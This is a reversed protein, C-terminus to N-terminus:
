TIILSYKNPQRVCSVTHLSVTAVHPCSLQLFMYSSIGLVLSWHQLGLRLRFAQLGLWRLIQLRNDMASLLLIFDCKSLFRGKKM